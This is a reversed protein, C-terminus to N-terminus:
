ISLDHSISTKMKKTPTKAIIQRNRWNPSLTSGNFKTRPSWWEACNSRELPMSNVIHITKVVVVVTSRTPTTASSIHHGGLHHWQQTPSCSPKSAKKWIKKKTPMDPRKSHSITCQWCMQYYLSCQSLTLRISPRFQTHHFTTAPPPEEHPMNARSTNGKSHQKQSQGVWPLKM